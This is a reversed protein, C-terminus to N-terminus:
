KNKSIDPLIAIFTKTPPIDDMAPFLISSLNKLQNVVNLADDFSTTQQQMLTTVNAFVDAIVEISQLLQELVQFPNKLTRKVISETKNELNFTGCFLSLILIIHALIKFNM